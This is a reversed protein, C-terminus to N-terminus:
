SDATYDAARTQDNGRGVGTANFVASLTCTVILNAIFAYFASYAALHFGGVQLPFIATFHQSAAMATGIVMGVAWGTLLAWRHFWRTYLGFVITPFTQLIWVGGLLQFDIAEQRANQLLLIFALAGFKVVLSSVKAMRAEQHPTADPRFYERYINRTFLNATAISMIAAPVLAGIAIASFAIGVFWSPFMMKFLAPVAYQAGYVPDPKIGAAFAMFGLLAILGLLVSYAPLFAANRKIVGRTDRVRHYATSRGCLRYRRDRGSRASGPYRGTAASYIADHCPDGVCGSRTCAHQQRLARERLGSAHRLWPGEIGVVVEAHDPVRASVRSHHVPGCLIRNRRCQIGTRSGRYVHIRHVSRWGASVLHRCNRLSRRCSGM